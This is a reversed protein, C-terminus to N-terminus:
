LKGHVYLATTKSMLGKRLQRKRQRRRRTQTFDRSLELSGPQKLSCIDRTEGGILMYSCYM